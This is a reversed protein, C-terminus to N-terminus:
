MGFALVSSLRLAAWTLRCSLSTWAMDHIGSGALRRDARQDGRPISVAPAAAIRKGLSSPPPAAVIAATPVPILVMPRRGSLQNSAAVLPRALVATYARFPTPDLDIVDHGPVAATVQKSAPVVVIIQLGKAVIAVDPNGVQLPLFPTGRRRRWVNSVLSM